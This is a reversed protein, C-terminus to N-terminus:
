ISTSSEKKKPYDFMILKGTGPGIKHWRPIDFQLEVVGCTPVNYIDTGALYNTLDTWTPNHGFIIATNISDDLKQLWSVIEQMGGHYLLPTKIIKDPSVNLAEAFRRATAAARKAPSSVMIDPIIDRAALRGGMMIVAKKGRKNLPRDIDALEPYDWSSKAHRIIILNKM